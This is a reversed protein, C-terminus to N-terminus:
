KLFSCTQAMAKKSKKVKERSQIVTIYQFTTKVTKWGFHCMHQTHFTTFLINTQMTTKWNRASQELIYLLKMYFPDLLAVYLRNTM